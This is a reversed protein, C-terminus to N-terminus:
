KPWEGDKRLGPNEDWPPRPKPIFKVQHPDDVLRGKYKFFEDVEHFEAGQIQTKVWELLMAASDAMVFDPILRKVVFEIEGPGRANPVRATIHLMPWAEQSGVSVGPKYEFSWGPKYDIDKIVQEADM